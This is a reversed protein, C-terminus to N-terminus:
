DVASCETAYVKSIIDTVNKIDLSFSDRKFVVCVRKVEGENGKKERMRAM